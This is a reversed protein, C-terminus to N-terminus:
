AHRSPLGCNSSDSTSPRSSSPMFLFSIALVIKDRLRRRLLCSQICLIIRDVINLRLLRKVIGFHYQNCFLAMLLCQHRYWYGFTMGLRKYLTHISIQIGLVNDAHQRYFVSPFSDIYWSYGISRVFAYILWDHFSIQTAIKSSRKLSDKLKEFIHRPLVFSCGPGPSEFLHNYELTPGSKKIYKNRGNEWFATVSSSYGGYNTSSQLIAIARRLHDPHWIDDQDSFAIWEYELPIDMGVILRFFNQASGKGSFFSTAYASLMSYSLGLDTCVNDAIQITKDSSHDDSIFLSPCVGEQKYISHIQESVFLEGNYTAMLVAVNPKKNVM